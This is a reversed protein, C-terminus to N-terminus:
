WAIGLPMSNRRRHDAGHQHPGAAGDGFSSLDPDGHRRPGRLRLRQARSQSGPRRGRPGRTPSRGAAPCDGAGPRQDCRPKRPIRPSPDQSHFERAWEKCGQSHGRSYPHLHGCRCLNGAMAVEIEEDSPDSKEALLAAAQMIQGPQCYGCQSGRSGGLGTASPSGRGREVGRHHPSRAGGRRVHSHRLRAGCKRRPSGHLCGCLSAGCGFKTGTLNLDERLYWLLPMGPDGQYERESRNVRLKVPHDGDRRRLAGDVRKKTDLDAPDEDDKLWPMRGWPTIMWPLTMNNSIGRSDFEAILDADLRGILSFCVDFPEDGKGM